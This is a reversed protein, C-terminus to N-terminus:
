TRGPVAQSAFGAHNKKESSNQLIKTSVCIAYLNLRMAEPNANTLQDTTTSKPRASRYLMLSAGGAQTDVAGGWGWGQACNAGRDECKKQM